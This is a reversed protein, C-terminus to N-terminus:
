KEFVLFCSHNGGYAIQSHYRWGQKAMENLVDVQDESPVCVVTKYQVAAGGYLPKPASLLTKVLIVVLLILVVNLLVTTSKNFKM